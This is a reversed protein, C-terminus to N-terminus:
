GGGSARWAAWAEPTDLDTTAHQGPLATYLIKDAHRQLVARAGQDGTLEML